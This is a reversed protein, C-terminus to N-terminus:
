CASGRIASNCPLFFQWGRGICREVWHILHSVITALLTLKGPVRCFITQSSWRKYRRCLRKVLSRNFVSKFSHKGNRCHIALVSSQDVLLITIASDQLLRNILPLIRVECWDLTATVPGWVGQRSLSPAVHTLNM